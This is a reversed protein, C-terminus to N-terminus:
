TDVSIEYSFINLTAGICAHLYKVRSVDQLSANSPIRQGPKLHQIRMSVTE